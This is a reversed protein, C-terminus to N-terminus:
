TLNHSDTTKLRKRTKANTHTRQGRVPYRLLHRVGKYNKLRKVAFKRIELLKFKLTNKSTLINLSNTIKRVINYKIKINKTRSNLGYKHCISSITHNGVGYIKNFSNLNSQNQTKINKSYKRIFYFKIKYVSKKLNNFMFNTKYYLKSSIFSLPNSGSVKENYAFHEVM